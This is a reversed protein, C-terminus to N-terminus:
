PFKYSSLWYYRGNPELIIPHIHPLNSGYAGPKQTYFTYKGDAGTKIWGRLYGHRRGWGSAGEKPAYRGDPNAHYIYLIVNEAPTKGDPQYIMGTVKLKNEAQHFDPLTDVPSLTR